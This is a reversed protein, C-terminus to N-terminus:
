EANRSRMRQLYARIDAGSFRVYKGLKLHPLPDPCGPRVHDYVWSVPVRLLAAVEHVTLLVSGDDGPRISTRDAAIRPEIRGNSSAVEEKSFLYHNRASYRGSM